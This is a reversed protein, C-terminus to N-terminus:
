LHVLWMIQMTTQNPLLVSFMSTNQCFTPRECWRGTRLTCFRGIIYRNKRTYWLCCSLVKRLREVVTNQVLFVFFFNFSISYNIWFNECVKASDTCSQMDSFIIKYVKLVAAVAISYKELRRQSLTSRCCNDNEFLHIISDVKFILRFFTYKRRYM